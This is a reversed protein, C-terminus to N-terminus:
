PKRPYALRLIDWVNQNFVLFCCQFLNSVVLLSLYTGQYFHGQRLTFVQSSTNNNVLMEFGFFMSKFILLQIIESFKEHSVAVYINHEYITVLKRLRTFKCSSYAALFGYIM